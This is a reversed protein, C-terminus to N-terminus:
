PARRVLRNRVLALPWLLWGKWTERFALRQRASELANVLEGHQAQMRAFESGLATVRERTSALENVAVVLQAQRDEAIKRADIENWYLRQEARLARGYDRYLSQKGDDFLSLGSLQPLVTERAGCVVVFYMPPAPETRLQVLDNALEVIESGSVEDQQEKWLLSHALVRQGYWVQQPFHTGLMAELEARYLERVHFENTYGSEDSYVAKNPSSIVLAGAPALVRRFEAIMAEQGQLHEITEFSVILDTEAAPLPLAACSAQVYRLNPRSAYRAQAHHIAVADVDVGVVETASQALLWSGYGEGCAADLVRRGRALPLMVSYRHWHEYWIAGKVEPTFREGTFPLSATL